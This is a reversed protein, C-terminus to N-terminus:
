DGEAMVRARAEDAAREAAELKDLTANVGDVFGDPTGRNGRLIRSFATVEYGAERAVAQQQLGLGAIRARIAGIEEHVM